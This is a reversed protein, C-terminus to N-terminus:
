RQLASFAHQGAFCLYTLCRCLGRQCIENVALASLATGQAMGSGPAHNPNPVMDPAKHASCYMPLGGEHNYM